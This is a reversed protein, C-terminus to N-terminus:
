KFQIRQILHVLFEFGPQLLVAQAECFGVFVTLYIFSHVSLVEKVSTRNM